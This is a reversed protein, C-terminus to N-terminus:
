FGERCDDCFNAPYKMSARAGRMSSEGTITGHSCCVVAYRLGDVDIGQPEAEYIVVWGIGGKGPTGKITPHRRSAIYGADNNHPKRNM